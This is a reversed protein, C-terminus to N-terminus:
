IYNIPILLLLLIYVLYQSSNQLRFVGGQDYSEAHQCDVFMFHSLINFDLYRDCEKVVSLQLKMGTLRASNHGRIHSQSINKMENVIATCCLM